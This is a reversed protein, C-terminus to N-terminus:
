RAAVEAVLRPTLDGWPPARRMRRLAVAAFPDRWPRPARQAPAADIWRLAAADADAPLATFGAPYIAECLAAWQLRGRAQQVLRYWHRRLDQWRWPRLHPSVWTADLNVELRENLWGGTASDLDHMVFSGLLGDGRYLGVPLRLGDAVIRDVFSGRLAFLSGHLGPYAVMSRRLAEASRGTSPVAAAANAVPKDRLSQDLRRLADPAVAAYGDVFFYTSAAPRLAHLFANVANAKDGQPIAFVRGALDEARLAEAAVTPSADSCGNLLVTVHGRPGLGARALAHLCAPLNAAENRAFVAVSWGTAVEAM